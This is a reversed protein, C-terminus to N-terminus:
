GSGNITHIHAQACPLPKCTMITPITFDLQIFTPTPVYLVMQM